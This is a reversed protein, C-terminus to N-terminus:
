TNNNNEEPETFAKMGDEKSIASWCPLCVHVKRGEYVIDLYAKLNNKCRPCTNLIQEVQDLAEKPLVDYDVYREGETILKILDEATPSYFKIADGKFDSGAELYRVKDKYNFLYKM